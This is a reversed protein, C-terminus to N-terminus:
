MIKILRVNVTITCSLMICLGHCGGGGSAVKKFSFPRTRKMQLRQVTFFIRYM